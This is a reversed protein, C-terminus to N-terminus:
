HLIVARLGICGGEYVLEEAAAAAVSVALTSCGVGEVGVEAGAGDHDGDVVVAFHALLDGDATGDGLAVAGYCVGDASEDRPAATCQVAAVELLDAPM